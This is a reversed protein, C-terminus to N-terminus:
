ASEALSKQVFISRMINKYHKVDVELFPSYKACLIRLEPWVLEDKINVDIKKVFNLVKNIIIFTELRITQQFVLTVIEPWDDEAPHTFLENFDKLEGDDIYQKITLLDQEFLYELSQQTKKWELLRNRGEESVINGIWVNRDSIFNAILLQEFQKENYVKALRQFFYKDNRSEFKERSVKAVGSFKFYDYDKQQFHLKIAVYKRYADYANM